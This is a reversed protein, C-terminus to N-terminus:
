KEARKTRFYLEILVVTLLFLIIDRWSLSRLSSLALLITACFALLFGTRFSSQLIVQKNERNKIKRMRWALLAITALSAIMLLLNIFWFTVGAPGLKTPNSTVLSIVFIVTTVVLLIILLAVWLTFRNNKNM